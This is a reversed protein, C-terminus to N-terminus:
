PAPIAGPVKDVKRLAIILRQWAHPEVDYYAPNGACRHTSHLYRDWAVREADPKHKPAPKAAPKATPKAM